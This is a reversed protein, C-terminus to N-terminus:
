NILVGISGKLDFVAIDEIGLNECVKLEKKVDSKDMKLIERSFPIAELSLGGIDLGIKNKPFKEKLIEYDGHILEIKHKIGNFFYSPHSYVQMSILDSNVPIVELPTQPTTTSHAKLGQEHITDVLEVLKNGFQNKWMPLVELDLIVYESNMKAALDIFTPMYKINDKTIWYCGTLISPLVKKFKPFVPWINIKAPADKYGLIQSVNYDSVAANITIDRNLIIDECSKSIQFPEEHYYSLNM